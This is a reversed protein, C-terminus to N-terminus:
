TDRVQQMVFPAVFGNTNMNSSNLFLIQSPVFNMEQEDDDEVRNIGSTGEADKGRSNSGM